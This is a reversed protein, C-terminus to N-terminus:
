LSELAKRVVEAPWAIVKPGLKQPAPFRGQRIWLRLGSRSIPLIAVWGRRACGLLQSERIYGEAPIVPQTSVKLKSM